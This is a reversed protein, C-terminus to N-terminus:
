LNIFATSMVFKFIENVSSFIKHNNETIKPVCVDWNVQYFYDIKYNFIKILKNYVATNLIISYTHPVMNLWCILRKLINIGHHENLFPIMLDM